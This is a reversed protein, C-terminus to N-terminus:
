LRSVSSNQTIDSVMSVFKPKDKIFSFNLVIKKNVKFYLIDYKKNKKIFQKFEYMFNIENIESEKLSIDKLKKSNADKIFKRGAYPDLCQINMESYPSKKFLEILKNYKRLDYKKETETVPYYKYNKLGFKVVRTYVAM